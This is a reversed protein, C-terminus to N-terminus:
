RDSVLRERGLATIADGEPRSEILALHRLRARHDEPMASEVGEALGRLSALAAQTLPAILGRPVTRIEKPMIQQAEM